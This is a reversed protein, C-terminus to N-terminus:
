AHKGGGKAAPRRQWDPCSESKRELRQAGPSWLSPVRHKMRRAEKGSVQRLKQKASQNGNSQLRRRLALYRDREDRLRGGGFVKGLSIAALSNEGVDVGKSPTRFIYYL